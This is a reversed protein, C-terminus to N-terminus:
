GQLPSLVFKQYLEKAIAEDITNRVIARGDPFITIEYEQSTIVLSYQNRKVSVTGKLKAALRDLDIERVDSNVVQVSRSQGCLSTFKLQAGPTELWEYHGHCAPCDDRRNINLYEFIGKWIDILLIQHNVKGTGVLLKLAETAQLSGIIAPLTGIIGVTECTPSTGPPPLAPRICRLCPTEGPIFTMTMGQSAIAGGYVWPIHYKLSFDNILFRTEYNDSGDLIVDVDQCFSAINASNVDAAIGEIRVSSNIKKLHREAGIAKPIRSKVDDEDFLTQRHLNHYEVFDRDIIRTYGVGARVLMSTINCGLAGCGIVAVRSQNLKAQGTEGIGPFMTQRSYRQRLVKDM